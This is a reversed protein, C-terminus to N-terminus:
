LLIEVDVQAESVSVVKGISVLTDESLRGRYREVSAKIFPYVTDKFLQVFALDNATTFPVISHRGSISQALNQFGFNAEAQDTSKGADQTLRPRPLIYSLQRQKAHAGPTARLATSLKPRSAPSKPTGKDETPEQALKAAAPGDRGSATKPGGNIWEAVTEPIIHHPRQGAHDRPRPTSSSSESRSKRLRDGEGVIVATNGRSTSSAHSTANEPDTSTAYSAPTPNNKLRGDFVTTSLSERGSLSKAGPFSTFTNVDSERIRDEAGELIIGSRLDSPQPNECPKTGGSISIYDDEVKHDEGREQPSASYVSGISPTSL